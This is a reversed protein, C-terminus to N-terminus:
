FQDRYDEWGRTNLSWAATTVSCQVYIQGATNTPEFIVAALYRENTSLRMHPYNHVGLATQTGLDPDSLRFVTTVGNGETVQCAFEGRVKIGLPVSVARLSPNTAGPQNNFNYAPLVMTCKNGFQIYAPINTGSFPDNDHGLRPLSWIRRFKTFGAPLTPNTPSQSFLADVANTTTNLILHLHWSQGVALATAVDRGGSGTGAVWVQDLRKTLGAALVIDRTNDSSRCQGPSIDIHTTPSTANNATTLGFISGRALVGGVILSAAEEAAAQAAQAAVKAAEAAVRDADADNAYGQTDTKLTNMDGVFPAWLATFRADIHTDIDAILDYMPQRLWEAFEVPGATPPLYGGEVVVDLASM